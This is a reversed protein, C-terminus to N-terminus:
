AAHRGRLDHVKAQDGGYGLYQDLEAKHFRKNKGGHSPIEGSAVKKEFTGRAESLYEIAEDKSLWPSSEDRHVQLRSAVREAIEDALQDLFSEPIEAM